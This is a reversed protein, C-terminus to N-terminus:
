AKRDPRWTWANHLLYNFSGGVGIGVLNALLVFLGLWDTLVVLIALTIVNGLATTSYYRILRVAKVRLALSRRDRWTFLDNLLFNTFTSTVSALVGSVVTPLGATHAALWLVISSVGVGSIGVLLFRAPRTDLRSSLALLRGSTPWARTKRVSALASKAM